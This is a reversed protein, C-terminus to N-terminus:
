IYIILLYVVIIFFYVFVVRECIWLVLMNFVLIGIISFFKLLIFVFYYVFLLYFKELINLICVLYKEGVLCIM